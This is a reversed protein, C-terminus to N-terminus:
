RARRRGRGTRRRAGATGARPSVPLKAGQGIPRFLATCRDRLTDLCGGIADPSGGYAEQWYRYAIVAVPEADVAHDLEDFGRGLTLRPRLESFFGRSLFEVPRQERDPGLQLNTTMFGKAAALSVVEENISDLLAQSMSSIRQGNNQGITVLEGSEEFGPHPQYVLDIYLSLFSVVFAMAVALVVVALVSAVPTRAYDAALGKM